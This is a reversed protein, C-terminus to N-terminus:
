TNLSPLLRTQCLQVRCGQDMIFSFKDQLILPALGQPFFNIQCLQQQEGAPERAQRSWVTESPWGAQRGEAADWMNSEVHGLQAARIQRAAQTLRCAALGSDWGLQRGHPGALKGGRPGAL